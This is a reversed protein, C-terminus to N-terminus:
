PLRPASPWPTPNRWSPALMRSSRSPVSTTRRTTARAWSPAWSTCTAAMPAAAAKCEAIVPALASAMDPHCGYGLVCDFVIVGTTDMAAYDRMMKIRVDPDIMPHPRGQTYVDDGLDIVDYGGHRLM